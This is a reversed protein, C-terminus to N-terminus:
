YIACRFGLLDSCTAPSVRNRNASRLMGPGSNGSAGRTVRDGQGSPDSRGDEAFPYTRYLSSTWEWVGGLMSTLGFPNKVTSGIATAGAPGADFAEGWWYASQTKARCAYEWQAEAPLRKGTWAAYARAAYWSVNVVPSEGKGSPFENAKWDILYNGDHLRRDIRSKQWEPNALVFKQFARNTVETSELWFGNTMTVTHQTEDPERGPERDPSGMQFSGAPIWVMRRGDTPSMWEMGALANRPPALLRVIEDLLAPDLKQALSAAARFRREGEADLIFTSGFKEILGVVRRPTLVKLAAEVQQQTLPAGSTALQQSSLAPTSAAAIAVAALLAAIPGHTM